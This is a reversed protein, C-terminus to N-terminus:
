SRFLHKQKAALQAQTSIEQRWGSPLLRLLNAILRFRYKNNQPPPEETILWNNKDELYKLEKTDILKLLNFFVALEYGYDLCRQLACIILIKLAKERSLSDVNMRGNQILTQYDKMWTAECWLIQEANSPEEKFHNNRSVRHNTNMDFLLFGKSRMFLDIEAYTTEGIYNEVFGTETEVFFAKDLISEANKLIPLELGQTDTKIVDVDLDKLDEVGDLVVTKVLEKGTTEFLDAFSFRNLWKTNPELLSYCYISKTKYLTHEGDDGAVAYPLYKLSKFNHPLMAMRECEEKNPDFGVLNIYPELSEWKSNLSGSSGIDIFNIGAIEKLFEKIM